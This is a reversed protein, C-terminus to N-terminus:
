LRESPLAVSEVAAVSGGANALEQMADAYASRVKDLSAEAPRDSKSKAKLRDADAVIRAKRDIKASLVAPRSM